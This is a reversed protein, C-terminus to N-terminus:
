VNACCILHDFGLSLPSNCMCVILFLSRSVTLAAQAASETAQEITVCASGQFMKGAVCVTTIFHQLFLNPDTNYGHVPTSILPRWTVLAVLNKMHRGSM